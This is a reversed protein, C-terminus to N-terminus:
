RAVFRNAAPDWDFLGRSPNGDLTEATYSRVSRGPPAFDGLADGAAQFSEYTLDPGAATAIAVFLDMVGCVSAPSVWPEPLDPNDRTDLIELGPTVAEVLGFCEQLAPDDFDLEEAGAVVMGEVLSLDNGEGQTFAQATDRDLSLIRPRFDTLATGDLFATLGTGVFLVSDAGASAFREAIVAVNAQSAPVDGQTDEMVATELVEIGAEELLPLVVDNMVGENFADSVVALAAGDFEGADILAVTGARSANDANAAPYAYWPAAAAELRATSQDGGIVGMEHDQVYCLVADQLFFGVVMFVEEDETLQVCTEDQSAALIPNVAAFVPEIQRGLVGGSANIEDIAAQFATEYSGHDLEVVDRIAELDPYTVGLRIIDSTVGRFSDTLVVTTEPAGSAVTTTTEEIAGGDGGADTSAATSTSSDPEAADDDDGGCAAMVLTAALLVTLLRKM